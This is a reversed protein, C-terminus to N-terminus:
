YFAAEGDPRTKFRKYIWQYQSPCGRVLQEIDRNMLETATQLAKDAYSDSSARFVMNFGRGAPLREAYAYIVQCNFKAAMRPLLTMTYAPIGFFPAFLGNGLGPEQDPLVGVLEANKLAKSLARVGTNDTPVLKAGTRQRAQRVKQDFGKLKPPRYLSTMPFHRACYLGVLEWSGIHPIALLVGQGQQIAQHILDEGEVSKVLALVSGASSGWMIGMESLLKGTELLTEQLLRHQQAPELEPFCRQINTQAVRKMKSPKNQYIWGIFAGLWHALKLPMFSTLLIVFKLLMIKM